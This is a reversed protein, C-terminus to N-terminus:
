VRVGDANLPATRRRAAVLGVLAVALDGVQLLNEIIADVDDVTLEVGLRLAGWIVLPIIVRTILPERDM